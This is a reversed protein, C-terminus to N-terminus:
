RRTETAGLLLSVGFAGDRYDTTLLAIALTVEALRSCLRDYRCM